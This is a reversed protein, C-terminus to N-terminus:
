TQAEDIADELDEVVEELVSGLVIKELGGIVKRADEIYDAYSEDAQSKRFLAELMRGLRNIGWERYELSYLAVRVVADVSLPDLNGRGSIPFVYDHQNLIDDVIQRTDPMDEVEFMFVYAGAIVQLAKDQHEYDRQSYDRIVEFLESFKGGSATETMKWVGTEKIDGVGVSHLAGPHLALTPLEEVRHPHM